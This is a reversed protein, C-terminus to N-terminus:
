KQDFHVSIFSKFIGKQRGQSAFVICFEADSKNEFHQRAKRKLVIGKNVVYSFYYFIKLLFTFTNRNRLDNLQYRKM